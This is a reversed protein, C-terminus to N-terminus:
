EDDAGKWPEPLPMWALVTDDDTIERWESDGSYDDKYAFWIVHIGTEDLANRLSVLYYDSDSPLRKSCPIWGQPKDAKGKEYGEDFARQLDASPLDSIATIAEYKGIYTEEDTGVELGYEECASLKELANIADKRYITDSM